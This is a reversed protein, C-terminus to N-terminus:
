ILMNPLPAAVAEAPPALPARVSAFRTKDAPRMDRYFHGAIEALPIQPTCLSIFCGGEEGLKQRKERLKDVSAPIISQPVAYENLTGVQPQVISAGGSGACREFNFSAEPAYSVVDAAYAFVVSVAFILWTVLAKM